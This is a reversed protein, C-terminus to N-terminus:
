PDIPEHLNLNVLRYTMAVMSVGFTSALKAIVEEDSVRLHKKKIEKKLLSEPMLVAAAFANAERENKIEGSTSKEDRFLIRQKDVFFDGKERHLEYHGIEHAITFRQRVQSELPNIGIIGSNNKIVLVGSVNEGLDYPKITLGKKAAIEEIDVPASTVKCERLIADAIQEIRKQYSKM